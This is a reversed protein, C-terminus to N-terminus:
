ASLIHDIVSLLYLAATEARLIHKGLYVFHCNNQALYQYEQESFDGEPGILITIPNNKITSQHHFINKADKRLAAVFTSMSCKLDKLNQPIEIAPLSPNGSQKCAERAIRNWHIQKEPINQIKVESNQTHLPIIKAVGIATSERILFDMAKNKLLAPCLTINSNQTFHVGDIAIEQTKCDLIYGEAYYGCGNLVVVKENRSARLVHFLHHTEEQALHIISGKRLTGSYFVKLM